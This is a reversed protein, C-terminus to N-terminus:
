IDILKKRLIEYLIKNTVVNESLSDHKINLFIDGFYKIQAKYIFVHM